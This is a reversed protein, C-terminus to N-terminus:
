QSDGQLQDLLDQVDELCANPDVANEQLEPLLLPLNAAFFRRGEGKQGLLAYDVALTQLLRISRAKEHSWKALNQQLVGKLFDTYRSTQESYQGDVCAYISLVDAADQASGCLTIHGRHAVIEWAPGKGIKHLEFGEFPLGDLGEIRGLVKVSDKGLEVVTATTCCREGGSYQGLVVDPQGNGTLSRTYVPRTRSGPVPLGLRGGFDYLTTWPDKSGELTELRFVPQQKQNYIIFRGSAFVLPAPSARYLGARYRGLRFTKVTEYGAIEPVQGGIGTTRFIFEEASSAMDQLNSLQWNSQILLITLLVAGAIAVSIAYEGKQRTDRSM